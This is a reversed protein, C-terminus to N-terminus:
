LTVNISLETVWAIAGTHQLAAYDCARPTCIQVARMDKVPHVVPIAAQGQLYVM